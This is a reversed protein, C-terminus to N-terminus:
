SWVTFDVSVSSTKGAADTVTLTATRFGWTTPTGTITGTTRNITLGAPLNSASYAYPTTGGTSTLPISVPTGVYVNQSGPNKM